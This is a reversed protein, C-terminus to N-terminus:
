QILKLLGIAGMTVAVGSVSTLVPKKAAAWQARIVFFIMFPVFLSVFTAMPSGRLIVFILWIQGAIMAVMGALGILGILGLITEM